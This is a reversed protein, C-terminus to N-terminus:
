KIYIVQNSNPQALNFKAKSLLELRRPSRLSSVKLASKELDHKANKIMGETQNITYVTKVISLRLWVTAISLLILTPIMWTPFWHKM